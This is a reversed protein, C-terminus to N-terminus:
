LDLFAHCQLCYIVLCYFERAFLYRRSLHYPAPLYAPFPMPLRVAYAFGLCAFFTHAIVLGIALVICLSANPRALVLRLCAGPRAIVFHLCVRRSDLVLHKYVDTM